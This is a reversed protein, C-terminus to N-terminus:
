PGPTVFSVRFASGARSDQRTSLVSKRGLHGVKEGNNVFIVFQQDDVFRGAKDAVGGLAVLEGAQDGPDAQIQPRVRGCVEDIPEIALGAAQRENGLSIFRGTFQPSEPLGAFHFLFVEGDHTAPRWHVASGDVGREAPVFLAGDGDLIADPFVAGLRASVNDTFRSEFAGFATEGDEAGAGLGTPFVLDADMEGMDAAGDDAVFEVPSLLGEVEVEDRISEVVGPFLSQDEGIVGQM